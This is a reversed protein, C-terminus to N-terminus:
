VLPIERRCSRVVSECRLVHWAFFARAFFDGRPLRRRRAPPTGSAGYPSDHRRGFRLPPALAGGVISQGRGV